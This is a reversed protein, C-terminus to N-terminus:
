NLTYNADLLNQKAKGLFWLIRPNEIESFLMTQHEGKETLFTISKENKYNLFTRGIATKKAYDFIVWKNLPFQKTKM